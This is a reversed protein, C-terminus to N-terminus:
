LATLCTKICVATCAIYMCKLSVNAFIKICAAISLGGLFHLDHCLPCDCSRVLLLGKFLDVDVDSM